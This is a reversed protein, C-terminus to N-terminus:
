GIVNPGIKGLEDQHKRIEQEHIKQVEPNHVCDQGCSVANQDHLFESCTTVELGGHDAGRFVNIEFNVERNKKSVPCELSTKAHPIHEKM